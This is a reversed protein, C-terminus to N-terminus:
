HGRTKNNNPPHSLARLDIQRQKQLMEPKKKFYAERLRDRNAQSDEGPALLEAREEPSLETLVFDRLVHDPVEPLAARARDWFDKPGPLSLGPIDLGNKRSLEMLKRPYEPWRGEARRLGEKEDKALKPMLTDKVWKELSPKFEAPRSPGLQRPLEIKKERAIMTFEIAFDPWKGAKERLRKVYRPEWSAVVGKLEANNHLDRLQTFRQGPFWPLTLPHKESLELLVRALQPWDGGEALALLSKEEESLMPRLVDKVYGQVEPSFEVLRTPREISKPVRRLEKQWALRREKEEKRLAAIRAPRAERPLSELEKRVALPLREVWQQERLEKIVRIRDARDAGEVKKREPEPLRELWNSYRELVAWLRKQTFSDAEHLSRDLQRLRGRKEAPLEWFAKLDRQLRQYHEPDSRWKELRRRNLELEDPDSPPDVFALVPVAATLFLLIAGLFRSRKM